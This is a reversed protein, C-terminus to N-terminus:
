GLLPFCTSYKEFTEMKSAKVVEEWDGKRLIKVGGM